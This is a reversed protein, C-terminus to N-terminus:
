KEKKNKKKQQFCQGLGKLHKIEKVQNYKERVKSQISATCFFLEGLSLFLDLM